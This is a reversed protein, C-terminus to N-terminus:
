TSNHVSDPTGKAIALCEICQKANRQSALFDKLSHYVSDQPEKAIALFEYLSRYVRNPTRKRNGFMRLVVIYM